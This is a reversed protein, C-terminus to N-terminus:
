HCCYFFFLPLVNSPCINDVMPCMQEVKPLHRQSSTAVTTCVKLEVPTSLFDLKRKTTARQHNKKAPPLGGGGRGWFFM